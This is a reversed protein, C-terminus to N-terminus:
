QASKIRKRFKRALQYGAVVRFLPLPTPVASTNLPTSAVVGTLSAITGGIVGLTSTFTDTSLFPSYTKFGGSASLPPTFTSNASPQTASSFVYTGADTL